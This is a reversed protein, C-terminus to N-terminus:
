NVCGVDGSDYTTLAIKAMDIIYNPLTVTRGSPTKKAWAVIARSVDMFIDCKYQEDQRIAEFQQQSFGIACQRVNEDPWDMLSDIFSEATMVESMLDPQPTTTPTVGAIEENSHGLIGNESCMSM